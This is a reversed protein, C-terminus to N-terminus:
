GNRRKRREPKNESDTAVAEDVVVSIGGFVVDKFSKQIEKEFKQDVEFFSFKSMIDIKGIKIDRNRTQDNILGILSTASLKDNKGINIFLRKFNEDSRRREKREGRDGGRDSRDSRGGRDSRENRAGRDSREGRERRSGKDSSHESVNLDEANKYYTLFRNFEASVIRKILEERSLEELKQYIEPLFQKIQSENVPIQQIEDIINYLQKECIEKGGPVLKKEFKKGTKREIDKIKGTERMNIISLCVGLKGARGTRGSRHIYVEIDDPLNYNIIHSLNDVDLGRAAVDTAVLLQLHGSRFLDMVRDRQAQSLDGHLADANYGDQILRDATDKTEERTRCFVIGYINPNVDAIRKLVRYRDKAHAIYFAHSVTQVSENKNGVTIEEPANMYTDAIRRIERPMTASFLLTKKDAPTDRLIIDLDEKFGMNLMEDAEDLVLFRIKGPKLVRREILDITRGPTGVVIQSGRKLQRIQTDISAGGYVATINMGPIYKAYNELDKAIQICLERTPSLILSQTHLQDVDTLQLLPLGFAATKGTGTQALAILDSESNLLHPITLAQVPTPTEFGMEEVAKLLSANLGTEKFTQM